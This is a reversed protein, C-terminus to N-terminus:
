CATISETSDRKVIYPRQGHTEWRGNTSSDAKARNAAKNNSQSHRGVVLLLMFVAESILDFATRTLTKVRNERQVYKSMAM